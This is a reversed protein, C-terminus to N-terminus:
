LHKSNKKKSKKKKKPKNFRFMKTTYSVPNKFKNVITEEPLIGIDAYYAKNSYNPPLVKKKNEKHWSLQSMVYGEKLPSPLIKNWVWVREEVEGMNWGVSRLFNILIFLFRKRGDEIGELGKKICPPFFNEPIAETIEDYEKTKTPLAETSDKRITKRSNWDFAQTILAAAEGPVAHSDDLYRIEPKIKDPSATERDFDLVQEPPIPLSVLGSKEHMSYAARFMHRNSILVTDVEIKDRMAEGYKEILPNTIMEVLYETVVKPGDPFLDITNIENVKSPFSKFPISIHFGKNGSYKVSIYKVDHFKIAEILYHTIKKSDELDPSDIDLVLDWGTRLKDLEKKAMGPKLDLANNWHEESIHFSTAGSKALELVDNEFHIIDPRRGFRGLGLMVSTERKQANFAIEKKIEPRSYYSLPDM